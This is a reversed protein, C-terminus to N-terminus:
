ILLMLRLETSAPVIVALPGLIRRPKERWKSMGKDPGYGSSFM